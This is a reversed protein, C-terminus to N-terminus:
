KTAPVTALACIATKKSLARLHQAIQQAHSVGLARIPVKVATRHVQTQNKGRWMGIMRKGEEYSAQIFKGAAIM